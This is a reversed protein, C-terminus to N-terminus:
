SGAAHKPPKNPGNRPLGRISNWIVQLISQPKRKKYGQWFEYSYAGVLGIVLGAGAATITNTGTHTAVAQPPTAPATFAVESGPTQAAIKMEAGKTELATYTKLALDRENTLDSLLSAQTSIKSNLDRINQEYEEIKNGMPTNTNEDLIELNKGNQIGTSLTTILNVLETQRTKLSAILADLDAVMGAANDAPVDSVQAEPASNVQVTMEGLFAYIQTKLMTMALANNIAAPEGGASVAARMSIASALFLDTQRNDSYARVLRATIDQVQQDSVTTQAKRMSTLVTTLDDIQRQYEDAKNQAIFDDLAKQAKEYDTKAQVIQTQIAELSDSTGGALDGYIDNIYKTYATAWSNALEAAITPDRYTVAIQISDTNAILSGKVMKLLETVTLGEERLAPSIDALVQEAINGNPVLTVFSQLRAKRDSFAALETQSLSTIDSGFNVDSATKVSSVVATAVYSPDRYKTFLSFALALIGLGLAWGLIWVWQRLLTEVYKGVDIKIEDNDVSSPRAAM